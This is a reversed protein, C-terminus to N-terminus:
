LTGQQNRNRFDVAGGNLIYFLILESEGNKGELPPRGNAIGFYYRNVEGLAEQVQELNHQKLDKM